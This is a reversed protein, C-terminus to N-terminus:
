KILVAKGHLASRLTGTEPDVLKLRYMYVGAPKNSGGFDVQRVGAPQIGLERSEVLRGAVDFIELSVRNDAPLSFRIRPEASPNGITRVLGYQAAAGAIEEVGTNGANLYIWAPCCDGEYERFWWTRTGYSDTTPIFSDGDLHNVGLYLTGASLGPPYGMGKLDIALEATYGADAQTGLTDVTTGPKLALAIEADNAAVLTTLYDQALASGDSAVQFGLRRGLIQHDPGRVGRENMLLLFGDWRDFDPHYQVVQDNVDFGMYLIDGRFAMKVTADAPDLVLATGGAVTPQFQGSRYPGVSPYTQRLAADDWRIDFSYTNPDTWIGDSLQGDIVPAAAATETITLDPAVTPAPGSSVTVDPRAHIQVQHYWIANGWPSQWWVRKFSVNGMLPWLWDCDYISVGWEIIDGGPQTVDYGMATLNFRMEFTYGTDAVSDANALGHVVTVADWNAIQTSDRPTGPPFTAWSGIFGPPYGPPLPIPGEPYWWSYLYEAIPAPYVGLGHDKMSMLFGDHRNFVDSGGVSADQVDAGLYLQNGEVLFSLTATVPDDPNATGGEIKWGSGPDGANEGYVIVVQEAQAWSSENLVGDLTIPGSANRAWVVDERAAQASASSVVAISALLIGVHIATRFRM